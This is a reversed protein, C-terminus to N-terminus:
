KGDGTMKNSNDIIEQIQRRMLMLIKSSFDNAKECNKIYEEFENISERTVMRQSELDHRSAKNAKLKKELAIEKCIVLLNSATPMNTRFERRCAERMADLCNKDARLIEWYNKQTFEDVTAQKSNALKIFEIVFEKIGVWNKGEVKTVQRPIAKTIDM